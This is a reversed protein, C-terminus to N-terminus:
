PAWEARYDPHDSWVAALAELTVCPADQDCTLCYPFTSIIGDPDTVTSPGPPEQRAVAPFGPEHEAVIARKAAVERLARAPDYRAIHTFASGGWRYEDMVVTEGEASLIWAHDLSWPGPNGRAADQALDEDEDLRAAIFATLDDM